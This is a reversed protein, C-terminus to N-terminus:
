PVTKGIRRPIDDQSETLAAFRRALEGKGFVLLLGVVYFVQLTFTLGFAAAVAGWASWEALIAIVLTGAFTTACIVILAKARFRTGTLVGILGAILFTFQM